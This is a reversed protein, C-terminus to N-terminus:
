AHFVLKEGPELAHHQLLQPNVELVHRARPVWPSLRGPKLAPIVRCVRYDADLFIVGIAFSMGLTHVSSCPSILLGTDVALASRGLLGRLRTSFTNAQEVVALIEQEDWLCRLPM